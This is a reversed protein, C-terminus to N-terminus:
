PLIDPQIFQSIVDYANSFVGALTKDAGILNCVQSFIARDWMSYHEVKREAAYLLRKPLDSLQMLAFAMALDPYKSNKALVFCGYVVKAAAPAFFGDTRQDKGRLNAHFNSALTKASDIDLHDRMFDLPNIVCSYERGPAFIRLQYGHRLALTALFPIQGGVGGEKGKADYVCLPFGQEIASACAPDIASYTKGSGAVGVIDIATNASPIFVTPPEGTFLIILAPIIGWMQWEPFSGCYLCVRDLRKERLQKKAEYCYRIKDFRTAFRAKAFQTPKGSNGVVAVLLFCFVM